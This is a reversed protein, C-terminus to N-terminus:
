VLFSRQWETGPGKNKAIIDKVIRHDDLLLYSFNEIHFWPSSENILKWLEERDEWYVPPGVKLHQRRRAEINEYVLIRDGVIVAGTYHYQFPLDPLSIWTNQNPDFVEIRKPHDKDPDTPILLVKGHYELLIFEERHLHPAPLSIWSNNAPDYLECLMLNNRNHVGVLFIQSNLRVAGMILHNQAMTIINWRINFEYISLTSFDIFFLKEGISIASGYDSPLPPVERQEWAEQLIDFSDIITNQEFMYIRQGVQLMMDVLCDTEEIKRFFDFENDYTIFLESGRYTHRAILHLRNPERPSNSFRMNKHLRELRPHESNVECKLRHFNSEKFFILGTIYKNKTVISHSIVEKLLEGNAEEQLRLCSLLAPVYTLRDSSNAETWSIIAEWVSRESVVNLNDSGILKIFIELFLEELGGNVSDYIDTFHVVAYRFCANFLDCRNIQSAVTLIKLCNTRTMKQIAFLECMKLLDDIVLYDSAIMYDCVNNVDLAIKGTYMYTLVCELLKSDM